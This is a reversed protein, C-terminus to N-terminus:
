HYFCLQLASLFMFLRWSPQDRSVHCVGTCQIYIYIYIYIYKGSLQCCLYSLSFFVTCYLHVSLSLCFMSYLLCCIPVKCFLAFLERLTSFVTKFFWTINNLMLTIENGSCKIINLLREDRKSIDMSFATDSMYLQIDSICDADNKVKFLKWYIRTGRIPWVISMLNAYRSVTVAM